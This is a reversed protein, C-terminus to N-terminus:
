RNPPDTLRLRQTQVVMMAPARAKASNSKVQQRDELMTRSCFQENAGAMVYQNYDALM